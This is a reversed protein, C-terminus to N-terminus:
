AKSMTVASAEFPHNWSEPYKYYLYLGLIQVTEKICVANCSYYIYKARSSLTIIEIGAGAGVGARLAEALPGGRFDNEEEDWEAGLM